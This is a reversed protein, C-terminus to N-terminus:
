LFPCWGIYMSSLNRPNVAQKILEDVQGEVGLPISEKHPLGRVKRRISDQVNATLISIDLDPFRQHLECSLNLGDMGPMNFDVIAVDPQHAAVKRLLDPADGAEAVVEFGADNLLRVIGERLLAQDEGIVIRLSM